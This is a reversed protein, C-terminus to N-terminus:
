QELRRCLWRYVSNEAVSNHNLKHSLKLMPTEAAEVVRRHFDTMSDLLQEPPQFCHPGDASLKPVNDWVERFAENSNYTQEFLRHVWFYDDRDDRGMWYAHARERWRQIVCSQADAALFWTSLMRDPGPRSFAFFGSAAVDSLWQDLPRLCYVTADAWVGGHTALLQLRILDSLAEPPMPKNLFPSLEPGLGLEKIKDLTLFNITWNRNHRLWSAGCSRVLDPAAEWGQLWLLWIIKPPM